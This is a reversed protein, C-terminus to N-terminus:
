RQRWKSNNDNNALVTKKEISIQQQQAEELDFGAAGEASFAAEKKVVEDVSSSSPSGSGPLAADEEEDKGNKCKKGNGKGSGGGDSHDVAGPSVNDDSAETTAAAARAIGAAEDSYLSKAAPVGDGGGDATLELVPHSMARAEDPTSQQRALETRDSAPPSPAGEEEGDGDDRDSRGTEDGGRLGGGSASGIVISPSSPSSSSM